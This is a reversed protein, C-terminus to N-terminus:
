GRLRERRFRRVFLSTNLTLGIAYRNVTDTNCEGSPDMPTPVCVFVYKCKNIQDKVEPLSDVDYCIIDRDPRDFFEALNKGVVGYGVIGISYGM